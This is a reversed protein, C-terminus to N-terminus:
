DFFSKFLPQVYRSEFRSCEWLPQIVQIARNLLEQQIYGNGDSAMMIYVRSILEAVGTSEYEIRQIRESHKELYYVEEGILMLM